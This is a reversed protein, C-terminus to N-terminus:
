QGTSATRFHTAIRGREVTHLALGVPAELDAIQGSRPPMVLTWTVAPALLVPRSAFSSAAATHAHGALVAIVQPHRDLLDALADPNTLPASDPLPHHVPVPPHHMVVISPGQNEPEALTDEIWAVTAEDLRGESHGPITSDCMLITLDEIRHVSNVPRDDEPEGLLVSRLAGRADHNGPCFLVPFPVSLLEAVERYEDPDGHDAIDGTVLLADPPTPLARLHDAALRVRHTARATGDVHLDSIHALLTM